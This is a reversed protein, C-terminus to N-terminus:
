SNPVLIHYFFLCAPHPAHHTDEPVAAAGTRTPITTHNHDTSIEGMHTGMTCPTYDTGKPIPPNHGQILGRKIAHYELPLFKTPATKQLTALNMAATVSHVPATADLTAQEDVFLADIM